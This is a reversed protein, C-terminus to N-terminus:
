LRFVHKVLNSQAGRIGATMGAQSLDQCPWGATLLDCNPLSVLEDVSKRYRIDQFRKRLVARAAPDSDCVMVTAMGAQGVGVDFGGVGSFLSCHRLEAMTRSDM